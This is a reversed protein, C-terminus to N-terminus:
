RGHGDGAQKDGSRWGQGMAAVRADNMRTDIDLLISLSKDHAGVVAAIILIFYRNM